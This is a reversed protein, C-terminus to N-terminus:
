APADAPGIEVVVPLPLLGLQRFPNFTFRCRATVSAGPPISDIATRGGHARDMSFSLERGAREIEVSQGEGLKEVVLGDVRVVLKRFKGYSGRIRTIRIVSM